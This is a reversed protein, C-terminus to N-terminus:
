RPNTNSRNKGLNAKVPQFLLKPMSRSIRDSVTYFNSIRPIDSRLFAHVNKLRNWKAREPITMLNMNSYFSNLELPKRNKYIRSRKSKSGKKFDRRLKRPYSPYHATMLLRNIPAQMTHFDSQIAWIDCWYDYSPIVFANFVIKFINDPLFKVIKRISGVISALKTKVYDSHLSFTLTPDFILGLYKLKFVRRLPLGDYSVKSSFKMKSSQGQKHFCIFETKYVNMCM